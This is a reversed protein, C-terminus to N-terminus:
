CALARWRGGKDPQNQPNITGGSCSLGMRCPFPFISRIFVGVHLQVSPLSPFSSLFEQDKNAENEETLTKQRKRSL